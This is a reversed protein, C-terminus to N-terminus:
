TNSCGCGGRNLLDIVEFQQGCDACQVQVSAVVQFEGLTIRDTDRLTSLTQETVATQRSKLRLLEERRRKIIDQQDPKQYTANRHKTLYTHIAQRTVFNSQLRTVDIGHEQLRNKVQIQTGSTVDDGTLGEYINDVEGAMTTVGQKSLQSRLLEKNFYTALDRLSMRDNDATWYSELTEGIGHLDYEDIIRAVKGGHGPDTNQKDDM